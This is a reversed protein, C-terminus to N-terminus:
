GSRGPCCSTATANVRRPVSTVEAVFPLVISHVAGGPSDLARKGDAARERDRRVAPRRHEGLVVHIGRVEAGSEITSSRRVPLRRSSSASGGRAHTRATAKAGSPERTTPADNSPASRTQSRPEPAISSVNLPWAEPVSATAGSPRM